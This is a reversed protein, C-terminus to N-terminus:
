DDYAEWSHTNGQRNFRPRFKRILAQELRRLEGKDGEVAAYWCKATGIHQRLFDRLGPNQENVPSHEELRRRLNATEGIYVYVRRVELDHFTEDYGIAYLGPCTPVNSISSSVHKMRWRLPAKVGQETTTM